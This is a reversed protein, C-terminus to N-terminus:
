PTPTGAPLPIILKQGVKILNPDKIGNAKQIAAVTVGYKAAIRALQDGAKVVYTVPTPAPTPSATPSPTPTPTPTPAATPTPEPTPTATPAATAPLPTTDVGPGPLITPLMLGAVFGVAAVAVITVIGILIGRLRSGRRPPAAAAEPMVVPRDRDRVLTGEADAEGPEDAVGAEVGAEGGAQATAATGDTVAVVVGAAAAAPGDEDPAPGGEDISDDRFWGIPEEADAAPVAQGDDAAEGAVDDAALAEAEAEASAAAEAELHEAAGTAADPGPAAAPRPATEADPAAPADARPQGGKRAGTTRPRRNRPESM